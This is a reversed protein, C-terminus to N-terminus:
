GQTEVTMAEAEIENPSPPGMSAMRKNMEKMSVIEKRSAISWMHGFPDMLVGYRDGWFMDQLPMLEKAGASLAKKWAQDANNVYVHLTVPTGNLSSPSKAMPFEDNLMLISDGIQLSAHMVKGDPGLMTGRDKAGFAEKYFAIAAKAGKVTLHPTLTRYGPPIPTVKARAKPASKKGAKAKVKGAAKTKSKMTSKVKAAMVIEKEL